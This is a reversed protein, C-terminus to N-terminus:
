KKVWGSGAPKLYNGPRTKQFAKAAALKEVDALSIGNEKAIRQYEARRKTNIEDVLARLSADASAPDVLGIYGTALEGVLGQDKADDLASALVNSGYFGALVVLLLAGFFTMKRM